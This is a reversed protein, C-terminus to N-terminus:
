KEQDGNDGNQHNTAAYGPVNHRLIRVASYDFGGVGLFDVVVFYDIRGSTL